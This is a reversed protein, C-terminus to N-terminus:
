VSTDNCYWQLILTIRKHQLLRWKERSRKKQSRGKTLRIEKKYPFKVFHLSEKSMYSISKCLVVRVLYLLRIFKLVLKLLVGTMSCDSFISHFYTYIFHYSTLYIFPPSTLLNMNYNQQWPLEAAQSFHSTRENSSCWWCLYSRSSMPPRSSCDTFPELPIFTLARHDLYHPPDKLDVAAHEM